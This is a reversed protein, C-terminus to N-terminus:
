RDMEKAFKLPLSPQLRFDLSAPAELDFNMRPAYNARAEDLDELIAEALRAPAVVRALPGFGLIWTRLAPDDCVRLTLRVSGDPRTQVKQSPHWRREVVYPAIRADFDIEIREPDGQNVGLSHPFVAASPDAPPDFTEDLLGLREIREVAFTRTEGYAPVYAILYLGGHAYVVRYPEVEYDRTRRSSASYYRMTARRQKLTAEILRAVTERSRKADHRKVAEPKAALVGPLRDLFARMRPTLFRSFKDFARGLDDHFPTGALCELLTRSFYLACLESLSFGADTLPKFPAGNLKWRTGTDTPESYVPFGAEDLAVLDRRITRPTVERASALEDVTLGHRQSELDRLTQWQRIVEANRAM